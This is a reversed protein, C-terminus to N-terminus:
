LSFCIKSTIENQTISEYFYFKHNIDENIFILLIHEVGNINFIDCKYIKCKKFSMYFAIYYSINFDANVV